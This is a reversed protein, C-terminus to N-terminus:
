NKSSTEIQKSFQKDVLELSVKQVETIKNLTQNFQNLTKSYLVFITAAILETFIGSAVTVISMYTKEENPILPKILGIVVGVAIIFFGIYCLRKAMIFSENAQNKSQTIYTDLAATNFLLCNRFLESDECKEMLELYENKKEFNKFELKEIEKLVEDKTKVNEM